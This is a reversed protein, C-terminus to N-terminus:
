EGLEEEMKSFVGKADTWDFGVAATKEGQRHTQLLAPLHQPVGAPVIPNRKAKRKGPASVKRQQHSAAKASELFM